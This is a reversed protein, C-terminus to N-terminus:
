NLINGYKLERVRCCIIFAYNYRSHNLFTVIKVKTALFHFIFKYEVELLMCTKLLLSVGSKMM